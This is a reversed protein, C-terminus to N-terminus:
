HKCHMKKGSGNLTCENAAFAGKGCAGSNVATQGGLVVETRLPADAAAIPYTGNKGKAIVQVHNTGLDKVIMKILGNAPTGTTDKFIWKNGAHNQMWGATGHGAYAVGGLVSIAVKQTGAADAVIIQAGPNHSQPDFDAFTANTDVLAFEGSLSLTDNGPTADVNIHNLVLNGEAVTQGQGIVCSSSDTAIVFPSLSTVSGCITNTGTDLSATVDQFDSSNDPKHLVRLKAEPINTGDVIGDQDLDPYQSCVTIPGSFTATTTIDFFAAHYVLCTEGSPCQGDNSCAQTTSVSCSGVDVAFSQDIVGAANSVAVM